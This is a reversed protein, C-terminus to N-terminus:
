PSFGLTNKIRYPGVLTTGQYLVPSERLSQLGGGESRTDKNDDIPARRVSTVRALVGYDKSVKETLWIRVSCKIIGCSFIAAAVRPRLSAKPTVANSSMRSKVSRGPELRTKRM